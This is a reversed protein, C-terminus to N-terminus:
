KGQNSIARNTIYQLSNQSAFSKKEIEFLEKIGHSVSNYFSEIGIGFRESLSLFRTIHMDLGAQWPEGYRTLVFTHVPLTVSGLMMEAALNSYIGVGHKLLSLGGIGLLYRKSINYFLPNKVISGAAGYTASGIGGLRSLFGAAKVTEAGAGLGGFGGVAQYQAAGRKFVNAMFTKIAGKRTLSSVAQKSGQKLVQAGIGIGAGIGSLLSLVTVIDLVIGAGKILGSLWSILSTDFHNIVDRTKDMPNVFAHPTITTVWGLEPHFNHIVRDVEIVGFMDKWTDVLVIKDYPKIHRGIIKLNGRYMPRIAEAMHNILLAARQLDTEANREIVMRQKRLEPRSYPHYDVGMMSYNPYPIYETADEDVRWVDEGGNTEITDVKVEKVTMLLINNAMESTSVKINNEVIDHGSFIHHVTSFRKTGPELSDNLLEQSARISKSAELFKNNKGIRKLWKAFFILFLKYDDINRQLVESMFDEPAARALPNPSDMNALKAVNNIAGQTTVIRNYANVQKSTYGISNQSSEIRSSMEELTRLLKFLHDTNSSDFKTDIGALIRLDESLNPNNFFGSLPREKSGGIISRMESLILELSNSYISSKEGENFIFQKIVDTYQDSTFANGLQMTYNLSLAGTISLEAFKRLRDKYDQLKSTPINGKITQDKLYYEITKIAEELADKNFDVSESSVHKYKLKEGVQVSADFLPALVGYDFDTLKKTFRAMREEETNAELIGDDESGDYGKMVVRTYEYWISELPDPFDLFDVTVEGTINNKEQRYPIGYYIAFLSKILPEGGTNIITKLDDTRDSTLISLQKSFGGTKNTSKIRDEETSKSITNLRYLLGRRRSYDEITFTIESTTYPTAVVFMLDPRTQSSFLDSGGRRRGSGTLDIGYERSAIEKPVLSGDSYVAWYDGPRYGYTSLNRIDLTDSSNVLGLSIDSLSSTLLVRSETDQTPAFYVGNNFLSETLRRGSVVVYKNDDNNNFAIPFDQDEAVRIRNGVLSSFAVERISSNSNNYQKDEKVVTGTIKLRNDIESIIYRALGYSPIIDPHEFIQSISRLRNTSVPNSANEASTIQNILTRIHDEVSPTSRIGLFGGVTASIFDVTITFAKWAAKINNLGFEPSRFFEGVISNFMLATLGLGAIPLASSYKRIKDLAVPEYHYAQDPQGIFLTARTGYPVVQCIYGVKYRTIEKLADWGIGDILWEQSMIDFYGDKAGDDSMFINKMANTYIFHDSYNRFFNNIRSELRFPPKSSDYKFEAIVNGSDRRDFYQHSFEKKLLPDEITKYDVISMFRGIHPIGSMSDNASIGPVKALLQLVKLILFIPLIPTNYQGFLIRDIAENILGTESFYNVHRFLETKYGQAVITTIPGPDIEAIAGTFVTELTEPDNGYGMRIIINTGVELQIKRPTDDEFLIDEFKITNDKHSKQKDDDPKFVDKEFVSTSLVGSIDTLTIVAVDADEKDSTVDISLVSSYGFMEDELYVSVGNDDIRERVFYLRFTPYARMHNTKLDTARRITDKLIKAANKPDYINYKLTGTADQYRLQLPKNHVGDRSTKGLMFYFDVNTTGNNLVRRINREDLKHTKNSIMAGNKKGKELAVISGLLKDTNDLVIIRPTEGKMLSELQSRNINVGGLPTLVDDQNLSRDLYSGIKKSLWSGFEGADLKTRKSSDKLRDLVEEKAFDVRLTSVINPNQGHVNSLRYKEKGTLDFNETNGGLVDYENNGDINSTGNVIDELIKEYNEVFASRKYYFFGPDCYDYFSRPTLLEPRKIYV